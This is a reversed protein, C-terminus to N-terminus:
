CVFLCDKRVDWWGRGKYVVVEQVSVSFPGMTISHGPAGGNKYFVANALMTVYLLCLCCSVRQVRTFRSQPPRTLVSLWLHGDVLSQRTREALVYTFERMEQQTAVPLIHDVQATLLELSITALVSVIFVVTLFKSSKSFRVEAM